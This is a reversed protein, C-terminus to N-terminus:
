NDNKILKNKIYLQKKYIVFFIWVYKTNFKNNYCFNNLLDCYDLFIHYIKLKINDDDRTHKSLYLTKFNNIFSHNTDTLWYDTLFQTTIFTRTNNILNNLSNKITEMPVKKAKKGSSMEFFGLMGAVVM